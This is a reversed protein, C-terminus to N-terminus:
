ARNILLFVQRLMPVVAEGSRPKAAHTNDPNGNYRLYVYNLVTIFLGVVSPARYVIEITHVRSLTPVMPVYLGRLRSAAFRRLPRLKACNGPKFLGPLSSVAVAATLTDSVLSNVRPVANM